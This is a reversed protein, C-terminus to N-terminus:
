SYIVTVRVDGDSCKIGIDNSLKLGKPFPINVSGNATDVKIEMVLKLGSQAGRNCGTGDYLYVTDGADTGAVIIQHITAGGYVLTFEGATGGVEYPAMSDLDTSNCVNTVVHQAPYEDVTTLDIKNYSQRGAFAIQSVAFVLILSILINKM